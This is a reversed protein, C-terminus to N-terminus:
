LWSLIAPCSSWSDFLLDLVGEQNVNNFYFFWIEQAASSRSNYGRSYATHAARSRIQLAFKRKQDQDISSTARSTGSTESVLFGGARKTSAYLCLALARTRLQLDLLM